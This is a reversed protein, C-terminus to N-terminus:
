VHMLDLERDTARMQDLKYLMCERAFEKFSAPTGFIKGLLDKEIIPMQRVGAYEALSNFPSKIAHEYAVDFNSLAERLGGPYLEFPNKVMVYVAQYQLDFDEQVSRSKYAGQFLSGSEDYKENIFKSYGMTCRHMFNAMGGEVLEKILLHMHNPMLSFGLISIIPEHKGWKPLWTFPGGGADELDRKWQPPMPDAHNFYFFNSLLKWFDSEDRYIPMKKVGRNCVHVYTDPSFQHHRGM